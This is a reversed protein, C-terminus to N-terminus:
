AGSPTPVAYYVELPLRVIGNLGLTNRHDPPLAVIAASIADFMRDADGGLATVFPLGPTTTTTGLVRLEDSVRDCRSVIRWTVADLAALDAHGEAVARASSAHAGTQRLSGFAIGADSAATLPAAWGSQSDTGNIALTAGDFGALTTRPDDARVVLTSYYHGPLAGIDYTGSGVYAVRDRFTTRFPLGCMQGLALDSRVWTEEPASARDLSLPLDGGHADRILSWLADNAATTEPRDYM